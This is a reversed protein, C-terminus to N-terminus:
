MSLLSTEGVVAAILLADLDEKCLFGEQVLKSEFFLPASVGALKQLPVALPWSGNTRDKHLSVLLPLLVLHARVAAIETALGALDTWKDIASAALPLDGCDVCLSLFHRAQTLYPNAASRRLLHPMSSTEQDDVRPFPNMQKLASSLASCIASRLVASDEGAAELRQVEAFLLTALEELVYSSAKAQIQPM